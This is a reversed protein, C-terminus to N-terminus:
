INKKIDNQTKDHRNKKYWLKHYVAMKKLCERCTKNMSKNKFLSQYQEKDRWKQCVACFKYSELDVKEHNEFPKFTVKIQDAHRITSFMYINIFM